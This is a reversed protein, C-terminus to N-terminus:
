CYVYRDSIANMSGVAWCDGCQGQDSEYDLESYENPAFYSPPAPTSILTKQTPLILSMKANNPPTELLVPPIYTLLKSNTKTNLSFLIQTISTGNKLQEIFKNSM